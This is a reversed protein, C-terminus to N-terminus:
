RARPPPWRRDARLLGVSFQDLPRWTGAPLTPRVDDHFWGSLENVDGVADAVIGCRQRCGDVFRRREHELARLLHAVVVFPSRRLEEVRAVGVRGDQRDLCLDGPELAGRAREDERASLRRRRGREQREEGGAVLDHAAARNVAARQVEDGVEQRLEADARAEHRDVLEALRLRHQRRGRLHDPELRRDVRRQAADVDGRHRGRAPRAAHGRDDVVGKRARDILLREREADVDHHM